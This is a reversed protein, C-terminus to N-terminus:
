IGAKIKLFDRYYQLAFSIFATRFLYLFYFFVVVISCGAVDQEDGIKHWKLVIWVIKLMNDNSADNDDYHLIPSCAWISFMFFHVNMPSIQLSSKWITFFTPSPSFDYPFNNVSFAFPKLLSACWLFSYFFTNNREINSM